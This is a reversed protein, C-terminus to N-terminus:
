STGQSLAMGRMNLMVDVQGIPLQMKKAIEEPSCGADALDWVQKKRLAVEVSERYELSEDVSYERNSSSHGSGPGENPALGELSRIATSSESAKVRRLDARLEEISKEQLTLFDQFVAKM